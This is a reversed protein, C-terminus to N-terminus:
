KVEIDYIYDTTSLEIRETSGPLSAHIEGTGPFIEHVEYGDAEVAKKIEREILAALTM